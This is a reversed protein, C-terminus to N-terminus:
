TAYRRRFHQSAVPITPATWIFGLPQRKYVDEANQLDLSGKLFQVMIVSQGKNLASIGRGLAGTSKGRGPGCIVQIMSEKM